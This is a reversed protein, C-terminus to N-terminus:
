VFFRLICCYENQLWFQTFKAMLNSASIEIQICDLNSPNSKEAVRSTYWWYKAVLIYSNLHDLETSPSMDSNRAGPVLPFIETTKRHDPNKHLQTADGAKFWLGCTPFHPDEHPKARQFLLERLGLWDKIRHWSITKGLTEFRNCIEFKYTLNTDKKLDENEGYRM